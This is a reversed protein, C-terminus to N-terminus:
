ALSWGAAQRQRLWVILDAKIQAAALTPPNSANLSAFFREGDRVLEGPPARGQEALAKLGAWFQLEYMGLAGSQNSPRIGTMMRNLLKAPWEIKPVQVDGGLCVFSGLLCVPRGARKAEIWRRSQGAQPDHLAHAGRSLYLAFVKARDTYSEWWFDQRLANRVTALLADTLVYRRQEDGMHNALSMLGGCLPGLARDPHTRNFWGVKSLTELLNNTQPDPYGALRLVHSLHSIDASLWLRPDEAMVVRLCPIRALASRGEDQLVRGAWAAEQAAEAPVHVQRENWAEDSITALVDRGAQEYTRVLNAVDSAPSVLISQHLASSTTMALGVIERQSLQLDMRGLWDFLSNVAALSRVSEVLGSLWSDKVLLRDLEIASVGNSLASRLVAVLDDLNRTGAKWAGSALSEDVAASIASKGPAPRSARAMRLGIRPNLRAVAEREHQADFGPAAKLLLEGLAFHVLRLNPRPPQGVEEEVVIGLRSVCEKLETRNALLEPTMSIEFHALSALRLLDDRELPNRLADIYRARVGAIADEPNLRFDGRRFDDMRRDVAATFAILDVAIKSPDSDGGFTLAWEALTSKEIDPAQLGERHFLRSVVALMETVGARLQFDRLGAIEAPARIKTKRRLLLLRAGHPRAHANWYEVLRGVKVMDLHVNDLVFLVGEGAGELLGKQALYENFDPDNFDAIWCPSPVVRGSHGVLQALTTKGAAGLGSILCAGQQDLEDLVEELLDPAGVYGKEFEKRTPVFPDLGDAAPAADVIAKFGTPTTTLGFYLWRIQAYAPYRLEEVLDLGVLITVRSLAVGVAGFAEIWGRAEDRSLDLDPYGGVFVYGSLNLYGGDGAHELDTALHKKWHNKDRTAEIGDVVGSGTVVYADPWNRTTQAENNRGNIVLTGARFRAPFKVRAIDEALRQLREPQLTRLKATIQTKLGDDIM